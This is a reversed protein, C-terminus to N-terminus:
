TAVCMCMLTSQYCKKMLKQENVKKALKMTVTVETHETDQIEEEDNSM